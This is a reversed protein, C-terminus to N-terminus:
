EEQIRNAPDLYESVVLRGLSDTSYLVGGLLVVLVVIHTGVLAVAQAVVPEPGATLGDVPATSVTYAFIESGSPTLLAQSVPVTYVRAQAGALAPVALLLAVFLKKM